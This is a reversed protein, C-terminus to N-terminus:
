PLSRTKQQITINLPDYTCLLPNVDVVAKM